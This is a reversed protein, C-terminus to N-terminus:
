HLAYAKIVIQYVISRNMLMSHLCINYQISCNIVKSAIHSKGSENTYCIHLHAIDKQLVINLLPSLGKQQLTHIDTFLM